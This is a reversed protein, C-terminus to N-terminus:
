EPHAYRLLLLRCRCPLAVLTYGNPGSVAAVVLAMGPRLPVHGYHEEPVPGMGYKTGDDLFVHHLSIARIRVTQGKLM